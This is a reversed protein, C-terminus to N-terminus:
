ATASKRHTLRYAYLEQGVLGESGDAAVSETKDKKDAGKGGGASLLVAASDDNAKKDSKAVAVAAAFTVRVVDDTAKDLAVGALAGDVVTKVATHKESGATLAERQIQVLTKGASKLEPALVAADGVVATREAAAKEIQEASPEKPGAAKLADREKTLTEVQAVLTKNEADAAVAKAEAEKGAALAAEADAALKTNAAQLKEVAAAAVEDLELPLGDVVIKKTGMTTEKDAVVCEPGGRGREVIAIHNGVIDTMWGDVAVGEPTTKRSDDFSFKYGCSMGAKGSMIDLVASRDRVNVVTNMSDGDMAVTPDSFGRAVKTYNEANVWKGPPHNNTIPRKAFTPAAKAVEDRPRYLRVIRNPDGPLDLERARYEQVNGAKAITAPATLFGDADVVRQSETLTVFDSAFCTRM